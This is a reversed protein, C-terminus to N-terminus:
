NLKLKPMFGGNSAAESNAKRQKANHEIAEVREVALHANTCEDTGTFIKTRDLGLCNDTDAILARAEDINKEFYPMTRPEGSCAFLLASSALLAIMGKADKMDFKRKLLAKPADTVTLEQLLGEM